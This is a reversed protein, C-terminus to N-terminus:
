LPRTPGPFKVGLRGCIRVHGERTMRSTGGWPFGAPKRWSLSNRRNATSEMEVHTVQGRQEVSM